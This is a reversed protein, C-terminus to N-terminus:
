SARRWALAAGAAMQEATAVRLRWPQLRLVAAGPAHPGDPFVQGPDHGAPAPLSRCVAWAHEREEADAWTVACEAVATDHSPDWYSCSAFPAHDLHALKLATPRTTVWGVLGDGVREWVPHVLRSRPRGLRDVTALTCWVVRHATQIFQERIGTPPAVREVVM